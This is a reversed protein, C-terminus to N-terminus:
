LCSIYRSWSDCDASDCGGHSNNPSGIECDHWPEVKCAVAPKGTYTPCGKWWKDSKCLLTMKDFLEPHDKRAFSSIGNKCRYKITIIDTEIFKPCSM